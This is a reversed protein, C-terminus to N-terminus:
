RLMMKITTVTIGGIGDKDPNQNYVIMIVM